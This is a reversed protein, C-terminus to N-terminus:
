GHITRVDHSEVRCWFLVDVKAFGTSNSAMCEIPRKSAPFFRPCLAFSDLHFVQLRFIILDFTLLKRPAVFHGLASWLLCKGVKSLSKRVIPAHFSFTCLGLVFMWALIALFCAKWM